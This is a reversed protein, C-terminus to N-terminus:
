KEGLLTPHLQIKIKEYKGILQNRIVKLFIHRITYNMLRSRDGQKGSYQNDNIKFNISHHHKPRDRITIINEVM